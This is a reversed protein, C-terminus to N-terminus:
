MKSILYVHSIALEQANYSEYKNDLSIKMLEEIDGETYEKDTVPLGLQKYINMYDKFRFRNQPQISNDIISWVRDSFKLFNYINISKDFHAFHDSMGIFHSMVGGEKIVRKFEKLIGILIEKPIDNINATM